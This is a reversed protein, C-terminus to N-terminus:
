EGGREHLRARMELICDLRKAAREFLMNNECRVISLIADCEELEARAKQLEAELHIARGYWYDRADRMSELESPQPPQPQIM